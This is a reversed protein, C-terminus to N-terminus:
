WMERENAFPHAPRHAQPQPMSRLFASALTLDTPTTIKLNWPSGDVLRVPRGLAEVLQADDTIPANLRPRNAHAERLWDLRFAQPTQATFLGARPITELIVGTPDVRKVTEHIPSGPIAAGHEVAARFVRVSSCM